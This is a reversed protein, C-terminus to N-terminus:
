RPRRRSGWHGSAASIVTAALALAFADPFWREFWNSLRLGFAALSSDDPDDPIYQM